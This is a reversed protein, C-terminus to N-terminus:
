PTPANGGTTCEKVFAKLADTYTRGSVFPGGNHDGSIEVFRKPPRAADFLKQGHHFPIIEDQRSHIVLLPCGVKGVHEITPYKVRSMLRVPLFWYVEAGRDPLSTFASELILGAPKVETALKAAVAGGLSQGHLLIRAPRIGKQETLFKWAAEADLYTGKEHPTGESRGYGRYDFLLVSVGLPRLQALLDVRHSINGGNGHCHLLVPARPDAAPMYWGHLVLGDSTKLAVEEYRLGVDAPTGELRRLPFYVLRAQFLFVL